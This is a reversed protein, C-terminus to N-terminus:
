GLVINPWIHLEESLADSEKCVYKEQINTLKLIGDLLIRRASPLWESLLVGLPTEM